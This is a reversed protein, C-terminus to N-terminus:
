YDYPQDFHGNIERRLYKINPIRTTFYGRITASLSPNTIVFFEQDANSVAWNDYYAIKDNPNYGLDTIFNAHSLDSFKVPDGAVKGYRTAGSATYYILKCEGRLPASFKPFSSPINLDDYPIIEMSELVGSLLEKVYTGSGANLESFTTVGTICQFTYEPLYQVGNYIIAKTVDQSVDNYIKYWKGVTLTGGAAIQTTSITNQYKGIYYGFPSGDKSDADLGKFISGNPIHLTTSETVRNWTQLSSENFVLCKDADLSMLDGTGSESGDALVNMVTGVNNEMNNYAPRFCGVYGGTDSAWLAENTPDPNLTFDLVDGYRTCTAGNSHAVKFTYSAGNFTILTGSNITVSTYTFVEYGDGAANPIFIDGTAPFKSSDAVTLQISTKAQNATIAATIIGTLNIDYKNFVNTHSGGARSEHILSCRENSFTDKPFLVDTSASTMGASVYASRLLTMNLKSDNTFNPRVINVGNYKFVATSLFVINYLIEGGTSIHNFLSSIISNSYILTVGHNHIFGKYTNNNCARTPNNNTFNGKILCYYRYASGGSFNTEDGNFIVGRYDGIDGNPSMTTSITCNFIPYPRASYNNVINQNKDDGIITKTSLFYENIVGRFIVYTIGAKLLAKTMSRYPKARTGDGTNDDGLYTHVFVTNSDTLATASESGDSNLLYRTKFLNNM